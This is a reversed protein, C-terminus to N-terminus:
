SGNQLTAAVSCWDPWQEIVKVVLWISGQPFGPTPPLTILDGGLNTPRVLGDIKGNIYITRQTGQLNLGDLQQLDRYSVPQVQMPARVIPRYRPTRSGDPNTTPLGASVQVDGMVFPNVAQIAGAAMGHLNM